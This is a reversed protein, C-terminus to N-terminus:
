GSFDEHTEEGTVTVYGELRALKKEGIGEVRTLEEVNEYPGNAARDALIREALKEGIGPLGALEEAAATNLDVPEWAPLLQEQPVTQETRVQVGAPVAPPVRSMGLLVLLYIATMGLLLWEIKVIKGQTEM